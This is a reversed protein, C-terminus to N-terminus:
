DRLPFKSWAIHEAKFGAMNVLDKECSACSAKSLPKKSLMATEENSFNGGEAFKSM